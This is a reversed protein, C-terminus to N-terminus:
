IKKRLIFSQAYISQGIDIKEFNIITFHKEIIKSINEDSYLSYFRKPSLFDNEFIGEGDVGGLVGLYFLGQPNLVNNIEILVSDLKSKEVHLLSEMAWISDFTKNLESLNHFDLEYAEISKNSCLRVMESSLDVATVNLGNEQFFVSAPGSGAGLDLLSDIDEKNVLELFKEQVKLKWQPTRDTNIKLDLAHNNYTLKLDDKIKNSTM